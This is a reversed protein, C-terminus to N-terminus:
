EAAVTAQTEFRSQPPYIAAGVRKVYGAFSAHSEAAKRLGTPAPLQLIMDLVPAIAADAASPHDGFLFPKDALKFRLVDLDKQFSRVRDAEDFRAIGHGVLGTRVHEQVERAVQDRAAAPVAAFFSERMVPWVDVNLWRDHVLGLRLTEETMRVLAHTAHRDQESLGPYFDAGLGELYAQIHHSDPILRDGVRLVPVKGLPMTSLDQIYEPAWEQGAMELLCMAKLCFPSHSPLRADGPFVILKM